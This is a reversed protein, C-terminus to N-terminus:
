QFYVIFKDLTLRCEQEGQQTLLLKYGTCLLHLSQLKCKRTIRPAPSIVFRPRLLLVGTYSSFALCMCLGCNEVSEVLHVPNIAGINIM